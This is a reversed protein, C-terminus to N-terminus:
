VSMSICVCNALMDATPTKKKVKVLLSEMLQFTIVMQARVNM